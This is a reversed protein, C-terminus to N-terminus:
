SAPHSSWLIFFYIMYHTLPSVLFPFHPPVLLSSVSSVDLSSPSFGFVTVTWTFHTDPTILSLGIHISLYHKSKAVQFDSSVMFACNTKTSNHSNNAQCSYIFLFFNSVTLISLPSQQLPSYFFPSTALFQSPKLNFFYAQIIILIIWSLPFLHNFFFFALFLIAIAVNQTLSAM